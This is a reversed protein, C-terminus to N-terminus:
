KIYGLSRLTELDKKSPKTEKVMQGEESIWEKLLKDLMPFKSHSPNYLDKIEDPDFAIEYLEYLLDQSQFPTWILKWRGHIVCRFRGSIDFRARKRMSDPFFAKGSEALLPRSEQSSGEWYSILSRGDIDGLHDSQVEIGLLDLATPLVDIISVWDNITGTFYKSHNEPLQFVLPVRLGANYVYAGHDFYYDHEGMSEGHDATFLILLNDGAQRRVAQMLLEIGMDTLKIDAAYLRRIHVNVEEPLDNNFVAREKGLDKPYANEGIGGPEAGFHTKYRGHYNPDFEEALNEPPYYPAHPDIYHVWLFFPDEHNLEKLHGIAAATTKIADRKDTGFDYVDFGRDLRREPILIHNSVVAITQYNVKKLIEALTITKRALRDWLNRVETKHPYCGTLLSALAQTTRPIPTVARSFYLGRSILQDISPSTNLDYGNASLYDPRLTDVTILLINYANGKLEVKLGLPEPYDPYTTYETKEAKRLHFYFFFAVIVFLAFGSWWWIRKKVAM